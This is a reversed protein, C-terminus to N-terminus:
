NGFAAIPRRNIFKHIAVPKGAGDDLFDLEPLRVLVPVGEKIELKNIERNTKWEAIDAEVEEKKAQIREELKAKADAVKQMNAAHQQKATAITAQVADAAQGPAAKINEGVQNLYSEVSNLQVKLNECFQNIKESM